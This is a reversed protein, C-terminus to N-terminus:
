ANSLEKILLQRRSQLKNLRSLYNKSSERAVGFVSIAYLGMGGLYFIGILIAQETTSRLVESGVPM